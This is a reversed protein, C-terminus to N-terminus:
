KAAATQVYRKTPERKLINENPLLREIFFYCVAFNMNHYRTSIPNPRGMILFLDKFTIYTDFIEKSIFM